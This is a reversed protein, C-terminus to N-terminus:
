WDVHYEASFSSLVLTQIQYPVCSLPQCVFKWYISSLTHLKTQVKKWM